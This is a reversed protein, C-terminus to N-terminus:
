GLEEKLLRALRGVQLRPLRPLEGLERHGGGLVQVGEVVAGGQHLVQFGPGPGGQPVGLPHDGVEARGLLAELDARPV